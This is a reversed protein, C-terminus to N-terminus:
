RPRSGSPAPAVRILAISRSVWGAGGRGWPGLWGWVGGRGGGGGSGGGGGGGGSRREGDAAGFRAGLEAVEVDRDGVLGGTAEGAIRDPLGEELCGVPGRPGAGGGGRRVRGVGGAMRRAIRRRSLCQRCGPQSRVRPSWIWWTM